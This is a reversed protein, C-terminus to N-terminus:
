LKVLVFDLQGIVGSYIHHVVTQTVYGPAGVQIQYDKPRVPTIIYKGFLNTTSMKPEDIIKITAGYIVAETEAETVTGKIGSHHVGTHVITANKHYEAVFNPKTAAFENIMLDFINFDKHLVKLATNINKNAISDSVIVSRASGIKDNFNNANTLQTALIAATVKYPIYEINTLYPTIIEIANVVLPLVDVEKLQLIDTETVSMATELETNDTKIAFVRTKGFILSMERAIGDRIEIKGNTIGNTLQGKDPILIDLAYFHESYIDAHEKFPLFKGITIVNEPLKFLNNVSNFCRYGDSQNLNLM